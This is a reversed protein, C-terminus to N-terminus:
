STRGAFGNIAGVWEKRRYAPVGQADLTFMGLSVFQLTASSPSMGSAGTGFSEEDWEDAAGKTQGAKISKGATTEYAYGTLTAHIYVYGVQVSLQAWGYHTNGKIQFKVGLYRHSVNVWNGATSHYYSCHEWGGAYGSHVMAMTAGSDSIFSQNSGITVGRDLAAVYAFLNSGVEGNGQAATVTLSDLDFPGPPCMQRHFHNQQITFDPIGNHNLDLNYPSDVQVHTPTYVIRAESPETLALAVLVAMATIFMSDRSKM